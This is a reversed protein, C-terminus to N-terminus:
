GLNDMQIERILAVVSEPGFELAVLHAGQHHLLEMDHAPVALPVPDVGRGLLIGPVEGKRRLRGAARSGREERLRAAITKTIQM